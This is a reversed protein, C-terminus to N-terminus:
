ILSPSTPSYCENRSPSYSEMIREHDLEDDAEDSLSLSMPIATALSAKARKGNPKKKPAGASRKNNIAKALMHAGGLHIRRISNGGSFLGEPIKSLFRDEFDRYHPSLDLDRDYDRRFVYVQTDPFIMKMKPKQFAIAFDEISACVHRTHGSSMRLDSDGVNITYATCPEGTCYQMEAAMIHAMLFQGLAHDHSCGPENAAMFTSARTRPRTGLLRQCDIQNYRMKDIGNPTQRGVVGLIVARALPRLDLIPTKRSHPDGETTHLMLREHAEIDEKERAALGIVLAKTILDADDASEALEDGKLDEGVPYGLVMKICFQVKDMIRNSEKREAALQSPLHHDLAIAGYWLCLAWFGVRLQSDSGSTILQFITPAQPMRVTEERAPFLDDGAGTFMQMCCYTQYANWCTADTIILTNYARDAQSFYSTAFFEDPKLVRMISSPVIDAAHVGKLEICVVRTPRPPGQKVLIGARITFDRALLARIEEEHNLKNLAAASKVRTFRARLEILADYQAHLALIQEAEVPSKEAYSVRRWTSYGLSQEDDGRSINQRALGRRTAAEVHDSPLATEGKFTMIAEAILPKVDRSALKCHQQMTAYDGKIEDGLMKPIIDARVKDTVRGSMRKNIVEIAYTMSAHVFGDFHEASIQNTKAVQCILVYLAAAGGRSNLCVDEPRTPNELVKMYPHAGSERGPLGVLMGGNAYDRSQFALALGDSAKSEQTSYAVRPVVSLMEFVLSPLRVDSTLFTALGPEVNIIHAIINMRDRTSMWLCISQSNLTESKTDAARKDLWIALTDKPFCHWNWQTYRAEHETSEACNFAEKKKECTERVMAFAEPFIANEAVAKASRPTLDGISKQIKAAATSNLGELQFRVCATFNGSDTAELVCSVKFHNAIKLFQEAFKECTKDLVLPSTDYRHLELCRALTCRKVSVALAVSM